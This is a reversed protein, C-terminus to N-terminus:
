ERLLGEEGVLLYAPRLTGQALEAVLEELTM